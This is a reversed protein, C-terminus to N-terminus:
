FFPLNMINTDANGYDTIDGNTVLQLVSTSNRPMKNLNHMTSSLNGYVYVFYFLLISPTFIKRSALYISYIVGFTKKLPCNKM